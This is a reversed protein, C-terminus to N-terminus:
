GCCLSDLSHASQEGHQLTAPGAMRPKQCPRDQDHHHQAHHYQGQGREQQVQQEGEVNRQGHHDQQHGHERALRQVEGGKRGHQQERGQQAQRQVHRGGPDHQQVAVGAGVRRALHDLREAVEQHAAVERDPDDNEHDQGDDVEDHDGLTRPTDGFHARSEGQVRHGALLHRDIGVQVGAQDAFVFRALAAGLDRLFRVEEARHVAGALEHAAVGDGAQQDHHDVHDAAQDHAHGLVIHRHGLRAADVRQQGDAVAQDRLDRRQHDRRGGAHHHRAHRGVLVNALLDHALQERVRGHQEQRRADDADHAQNGVHRM